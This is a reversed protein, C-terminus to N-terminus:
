EEVLEARHFHKYVYDEVREEMMEMTSLYRNDGNDIANIVRLELDNFGSPIVLLTGDNRELLLQNFTRDLEIRYDINNITITMNKGNSSDFTLLYKVM